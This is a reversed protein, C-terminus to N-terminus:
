DRALASKVNSAVGEPVWQTWITENEQLFNIATDRATSDTRSMYALARSTLDSNTRYKKLFEILSPAQKAFAANVGIPVSIVPDATAQSPNERQNMEDWIKKDYAPEQLKIIQDRIKGILTSPTWYAFLIPRKRKINSEVVAALAAGTGPRFNTFDKHLGYGILKRSNILECTWGAICNYFRGKRPNEPDAFVHKFKPLDSVSKLGRAPADDGEVLYKPIYWGQEADSFNIGVKIIKGSKLANEWMEAVSNAWIEMTIDIGGRIMGNLLPITSGPIQDIKCGYGHEIIYGAVATHFMNSDWDLSAFVVPRNIECSHSLAPSSMIGSMMIIISTVALSIRM